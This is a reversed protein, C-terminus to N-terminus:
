FTTFVFYLSDFIVLNAEEASSALTYNQRGPREKFLLKQWYADDDPALQLLM